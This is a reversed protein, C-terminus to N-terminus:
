ASAESPTSTTAPVGALVTLFKRKLEKRQLEKWYTVFDTYLKDRQATQRQILKELGIRIEPKDASNADLYTKLLPRRVDADHIEGIREQVNKIWNYIQEYDDGPFAPAFIEMTYRLRKAAIRMNHLEAVRNVDTIYPEFQYMEELRTFLMLPANERLQGMPNVSLLPRAKAM